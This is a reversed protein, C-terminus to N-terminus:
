PARGGKPLTTHSRPEEANTIAPPVCAPAHASSAELAALTPGRRSRGSRRKGRALTWEDHPTATPEANDSPRTKEASM